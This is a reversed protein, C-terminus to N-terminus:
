INVQHQKIIRGLFIFQARKNLCNEIREPIGPKLDPMPNAGQFLAHHICRLIEKEPHRHKIGPKNGTRGRQKGPKCFHVFSGIDLAFPLLKEVIHELLTCFPFGLVAPMGVKKFRM